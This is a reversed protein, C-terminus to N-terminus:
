FDVETMATSPYEEKSKRENCSEPKTMQTNSDKNQHRKIGSQTFNSFSASLLACGESRVWSCLFVNLAGNKM